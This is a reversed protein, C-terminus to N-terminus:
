NLKRKVLVEKGSLDFQVDNTQALVELVETLPKDRAIQAWVHWDLQPGEFRVEVNYWRSVELMVDELPVDVFYFLNNKWALNGMIDAKSRVFIDAGVVSQENPTLFTELGQVPATVKVSGELLTTVFANKEGYAMVNFKTGYVTVDQKKDGTGSTVIFRREPDHAIDFFGEGELYVQREDDKFRSPFRLTSSANLQVESGDGLRVTYVGGKPTSITNMKSPQNKQTREEFSISLNGREMKEIKLGARSFVEGEDLKEIDMKYGDTLTLIAHGKAPKPNNPNDGSIAVSDASSWIIPNSDIENSVTQPTKSVGNDKNGIWFFFLLVAAAVAIWPTIRAILRKSSGVSNDLGAIAEIIQTQQQDNMDVLPKQMEFADVLAREVKDRHITSESYRELEAREEETEKQLMCQEVLYAIRKDESEQM